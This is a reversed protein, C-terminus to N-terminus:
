GSNNGNGNNNNNNKHNSNAQFVLQAPYFDKPFVQLYPLHPDHEPGPPVEAAAVIKREEENTTTAAIVKEAQQQGGVLTKDFFTLVTAVVVRLSDEVDITSGVLMDKALHKFVLPSWLAVDNFNHHRSGKLTAIFGRTGNNNNSNLGAILRDMRNLNDKWQWLESNLFLFSFDPNRTTGNEVQEFDSEALPFM